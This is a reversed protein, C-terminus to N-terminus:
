IENIIKELSQEVTDVSTDISIFNQLPPEYELVHYDERGRKIEEKNYHVFIEKIESGLISKLEERQARYPSVLSVIVDKEQNHLYHAIKQATDINRLRGAISYDKNSFLERMQDGDIRFVKYFFSRKQELRVKLADALTTKGAGPQGTFWYVM